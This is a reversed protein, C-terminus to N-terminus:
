YQLHLGIDMRFVIEHSDEMKVESPTQVQTPVMPPIEQNEFDLFKSAAGLKREREHLECTGFRHLNISFV